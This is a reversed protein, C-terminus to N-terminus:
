IYLIGYAYQLAIFLLDAIQSLLRCMILKLHLPIEIYIYVCLHVHNPLNGNGHWFVLLYCRCSLFTLVSNRRMDDVVDGIRRQAVIDCRLHDHRSSVCGVFWSTGKSARTAFSAGLSSQEGMCILGIMDPSSTFFISIMQAWCSHPSQVQGLYTDDSGFRSVVLLSSWETVWTVVQAEEAPWMRWFIREKITNEMTNETTRVSTVPFISCVIRYYWIYIHIYIYPNTQFYPLIPYM